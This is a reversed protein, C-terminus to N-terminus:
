RGPELAVTAAELETLAELTPQELMRLMQEDAAYREAQTPIEHVSIWARPVGAPGRPDEEGGAFSKRHETRCVLVDDRYVGARTLADKVCRLLKDLDSGRSREPLTVRKPLKNPRPLFFWVKLSCAREIPPADGLADLAASVVAEQWPKTRPNDNTLVPRTWGKPIFGKMSGKPAPVGMATFTLTRM